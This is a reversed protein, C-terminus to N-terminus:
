VSNLNMEAAKVAQLVRLIDKTEAVDHVRLIQTGRNVALQAVALSAALRQSVNKGTIQGLMSKRSLGALVPFGSEVFVQLNNLLDINHQLNKGFGFGPDIIINEKNIGSEICSNIRQQFFEVVEQIVNKYEIKKQMTEPKGQMHMLCVPVNLQAAIQLANEKQLAYVDNIMSAGAHVAEYMVVAKSTDISIPADLEKSLAEILPVVRHLEEDESVDAAGPRTSEGGIDIIDAGDVHMQKAQKIASDFDIFQGGDSFSDPTVNLIGMILPEQLNLESKAFQLHTQLKKDFYKQMQNMTEKWVLFSLM